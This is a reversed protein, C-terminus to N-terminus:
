RGPSCNRAGRPRRMPTMTRHGSAGTSCSIASGSAATACSSVPGADVFYTLLISDRTDVEPGVPDASHWSVDHRCVRLRHQPRVADPRRACTGDAARGHFITGINTHADDRPLYFQVTIGKWHTDTHPLIKYGPVDRTLIPVPYLATDAFDDGLRRQLDSAPPARLRGASRALVARPRGPGLSAAQRGAPQPHIRFCTSRSARRRADARVDEKRRGSM